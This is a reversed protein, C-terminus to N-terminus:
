LNKLYNVLFENANQVGAKDVGGGFAIDPRGGGGKGGIKEVINPIIKGANLDFNAILDDSLSLCIAVKNDCYSSFLIATNNNNKKKTRIQTTIDRLDKANVNEFLNSIFNIDNLKISLFDASNNLNEKKLNEIEKDKEKIQKIKAAGLDYVNSIAQNILTKEDDSTIIESDEEDKIFSIDNFGKKSSHFNSNSIKIEDFQQKIKLSELLSAFKREQLKLYQLAFYGTKAEIRRIGAAIGKESIIKFIGINGTREVHTGGCLEVSVNNNQQNKGMSLVRVSDDYKEGFLALAGKKNANEISMVETKVQSNQRIYFNVLDEIQILEDESVSHNHNFDFTLYESEVNSGKQTVQNGLIKRLAHHLLHTASHNQARFQRNRNNVLAIIEDGVKFCGKVESINHIFLGDAAKITEKVDIINNLKSYEIKNSNPFDAALIINGDDGRQGGSTAYFPTKDLIIAVNLDDSSISEVEQNNSIIAIIKANDKTNEYGTFSTNGLKEKLDFFISQDQM